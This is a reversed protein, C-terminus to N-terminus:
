PPLRRVARTCTQTVAIRCRCRCALHAKPRAPSPLTTQSSCSATWMSGLPTTPTAPPSRTPLSTWRATRPVWPPSSPGNTVRMPIVLSRNTMTPAANLDVASLHALDIINTGSLGPGTWGVEVHDGGGAEKHRAEIYYLQGATLSFGASRQSSYVNWKLRDTWGSVSACVTASAPNTTLSFFLQSNDDSAIFFNYTGSAPARLLGRIRSGYNDGIDNTGSSFNTLPRLFDPRSPYKSASTLSAVSTDSGINTFVEQYISTAVLANSEVLNVTFTATAPFAPPINNSVQITLVYSTQATTRLATEDAVRVEGNTPNLSFIGDTNGTTLIFTKINTGAGLLPLAGVLSGAFADRHLSITFDIPDPEYSKFCPALYKGPIVNTTGGYNWAVSVYDGGEHEKLRAEIYYPQGATLSISSSRQSSRESWSCYGSIANAGSIYARRTASAPNTPSSTSLCLESNDDSAIWFRYSGTAPPILYGRMVAGYHDGLSIEGDFATEQKEWAPDDPYSSASTLDSVLQGTINTHVAYCISGPRFPSTNALVTVTVLGTAMLPSPMLDSVAVSLSYVSQVANDLEGAVTIAGNGDVAFANNSNGAVISYGLTSFFDADSATVTGIVTGIQTHALVNMDAASLIPSENVNTIGIVVRNTEALAPNLSDLIEVFLEFQVPLQINLGLTEYDLQSSDAVTINGTDALTFAGGTNGSLITYTRPDGNVVSPPVNGVLTGNPTNEGIVFRSPMRAGSVTGTISYYGISGYTSFGTPIPRQPGAGTVRFTYDGASLTTPSPPPSWTRRASSCTIADSGDCLTAAVALSGWDGDWHRILNPNATLNIAGSNTLTFRFADTDGATEIVGQASATNGPYLELYRATALTGGTDDTRFDVNNNNNVIIAIDDQNSNNAYQYEGKAWQGLPRYYAVGMIPAWGTDGNGQGGYYEVHNTGIEQGHHGLGLAHGCEHAIAEGCAKVDLLYVWNPEDPIGGWNFCGGYSWGGVGAGPMPTIITRQRSTPQAQQFVKLDTTVNITFPLYREAVLEWISYIDANSLNPRDYKVGGSTPTYGGQFDLYIVGKAAPLSQLALIGNQYAPTPLNTPFQTPNLPPTNAVQNTPGPLPFRLCLVEGLKRRVLKLSGSPVSELRYAIERTALEVVASFPGAPPNKRFFFRGTDPSSLKGGVYVIEGNLREVHNIIGEAWEGETLEFRLPSGDGKGALHSLFAPDWDRTSQRNTSTTAASAPNAAPTPPQAVPTAPTSAAVAPAASSENSAPTEKVGRQSRPPNEM